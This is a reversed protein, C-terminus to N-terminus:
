CREDYADFLGHVVQTKRDLPNAVDALRHRDHNRLTARKSLIREIQDTDVVPLNCNHYRDLVRDCIAGHKQVRLYAAIDDAIATKTVAIRLGSKGARCV